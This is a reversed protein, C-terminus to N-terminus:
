LEPGKSACRQRPASYSQKYEQYAEEAKKMRSYNYESITLTARQWELCHLVYMWSRPDLNLLQQIGFIM